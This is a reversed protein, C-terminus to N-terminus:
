KKLIYASKIYDLKPFKEKLFANGKVQIEGQMRSPREGYESYFDKIVDMGTIVKAIVPFGAVGSYALTDLRPSNNGLNIFIQTSRTEVGGRAFSITGEVNKEMVPEDPVKAAQWNNNLTSDNHIGFQVVFNEVVRFLAIDTYFGTKILMYLRDVAQPSWERKAEIEFNGKTTEFRAKFSDPAKKTTWKENFLKPSCGTLCYFLFPLILINKFKM